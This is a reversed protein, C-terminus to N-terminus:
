RADSFTLEKQKLRRLGLIVEDLAKLLRELAVEPVDQMGLRSAILMEAIRSAAQELGPVMDVFTAINEANLFGLSLVKDATLADDLISAEKFLAFNKIQLESIAEKVTHKAEAIKEALPVVACVDPITVPRAGSAAQGMAEKMFSPDIGMTVGLFMADVPKLFAKQDQALKAVPPGRFSYLGGNGILEVTGTWSKHAMKTFMTPEEVLEVKAKLPLWCMDAPIAYEGEGIKCVAKLEPTCRLMFQEGLENSGIYSVLGEPSRTSSQITLPVFARANGHDIYYFTGFGQPNGKPIDTSKGILKGAVHEQLAYQSGNSFLTLPMPQMDLSLLQPFCWGVLTNGMTDQVSWLGFQDAAKVDGADLTQKVAADPSVTVSGDSEVRQVMDPHDLLSHAQQQDVVQEQPAYAETNAWKVKYRGNALKTVQVVNPKIADYAAEATKTVDMPVLGLASAFAAKVGESANAVAAQLDPDQMATKFREVHRELVRGHLQPLLPTLMALKVGRIGAASQLPKTPGRLTQLFKSALVNQQPTVKAAAPAARAAQGAAQQIGQKLAAVPVYSGQKEQASSLKVGGGGIRGDGLPPQLDYHISPEPPRTRSADFTDPRFMAARLRAETLPHYQKDHIFVDLPAMMQERVVLPLHVRDLPRDQREEFTMQSKPLLEISGFAYGREEDVRDLVVNVEFDSLYPLQRYAEQTIEQEWKQADDSLRVMAGSVKEFTLPKDLFLPQTHM